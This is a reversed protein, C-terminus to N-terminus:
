DKKSARAMEKEIVLRQKYCKRSKDEEGQDYLLKGLQDLLDLQGEFDKMVKKISLHNQFTQILRPWDELQRYADEIEDYTRDMKGHDHLQRYENLATFMFHVAYKQQDMKLFKDIYTELFPLFDPSNRTVYKTVIEQLTKSSRDYQELEFENNGKIELLQRVQEPTKASKHDTQFFQRITALSEEYKEETFERKAVTLVLTIGEEAVEDDPILDQGTLFENAQIPRDPSESQLEQSKESDSPGTELPEQVDDFLGGIPEVPIDKDIEKVPRSGAGGKQSASPIIVKKITQPTYAGIAQSQSVDVKKIAATQKKSPSKSSLSLIVDEEQDEAPPRDGEKDLNSQFRSFVESSIVQQKPQTTDAKTAKSKINKIVDVARSPDPANTKRKIRSRHILFYGQLAVLIM